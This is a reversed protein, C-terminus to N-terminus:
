LSLNQQHKTHGVNLMMKVMPRKPRGSLGLKKNEGLYTYIDRLSSPTSIVFPECDEVTQTELGYMRLTRQLERTESLLVIQVMTKNENNGSSSYRRGIPDIDPISLHKDYILNGLIYLSQAWVLPVNENPFRM